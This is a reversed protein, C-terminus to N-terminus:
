LTKNRSMEERIGQVTRLLPRFAKLPPPLRDLANQAAERSGFSGYLVTLFPKQRAVTRYVYIKTIEISKAISSLHEKLQQPNEAGLLQISHTGPAERQLWDFVPPLVISSAEIDLGLGDPIVRIINETLGGGTIHAMAHLDHRGLLELIPKVYLTTPAMLADVLKVGGVDLDAPRGARDYIRRVLSYGNSHPGSSAIGLLVDGARVKAGDLLKSKEVAAASSTM